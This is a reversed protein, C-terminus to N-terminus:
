QKEKNLRYMIADLITRKKRLQKERDVEEQWQRILENIHEGNDKTFSILREKLAKYLSNEKTEELEEIIDITNDTVVKVEDLEKLWDIWLEYDGLISLALILNSTIISLTANLSFTVAAKSNSKLDVEKDGLM